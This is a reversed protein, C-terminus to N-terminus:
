QFGFAWISAVLEAMFLCTFVLSVISLAELATEGDSKPVKGECSLLQIVFDAFICAVDVSVLLLVFYHGIKSSLVRRTQRRTVEVTSESSSPEQHDHNYRFPALLQQREDSM